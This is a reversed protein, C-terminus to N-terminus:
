IFLLHFLTKDESSNKNVKTAAAAYQQLVHEVSGDEPEFFVQVKDYFLSLDTICGRRVRKKRAFKDLMGSKTWSEKSFNLFRYSPFFVIMGAPIINVFNSLVQGLQSVQREILLDCFVIRDVIESNHLGEAEGVQVRTKCWQTGQSHGPNASKGKSHYSWM